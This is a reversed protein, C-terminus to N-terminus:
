NRSFFLWLGIMFLLPVLTLFAVEILPKYLILGLMGIAFHLWCLYSIYRGWDKRGVFLFSLLLVTVFSLAWKTQGAFRISPAIWDTGQTSASTLAMAIARNEFVDFIATGTACAVALLALPVAWPYSRQALLLSLLLFHLWYCAIFGYDVQLGFLLKQKVGDTKNTGAVDLPVAALLADIEAANQVFEIAIGPRRFNHPPYPPERGTAWVYDVVVLLGLLAMLTTLTIAGYLVIKM